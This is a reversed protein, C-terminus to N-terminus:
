VYIFRITVLYFLGAFPNYVDFISNIMSNYVCMLSVILIYVSVYNICCFLGYLLHIHLM